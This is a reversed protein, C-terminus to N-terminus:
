LNLLLKHILWVALRGIIYGFALGVCVGVLVDGLYHKGAFVRSLSVLAAWIFLLVPLLRKRKRTDTSLGITLATAVGFANAAHASFFGFFSGQGELRHLGNDIMYADWSPRLRGVGDKILNAFQDCCVVTLGVAVLVILAKKWGLRVFLIVALVAYLVFWIEKDSFAAWFADSAGCHFSNIWLTVNQDAHHLTEILSM